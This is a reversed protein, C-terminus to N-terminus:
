RIGWGRRDINRDLQQFIRTRPKKDPPRKRALSLPWPAGLLKGQDEVGQYKSKGVGNM